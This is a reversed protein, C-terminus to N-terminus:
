VRCVAVCVYLCVLDLDFQTHPRSVRESVVLRVDHLAGDYVVSRKMSSSKQSVPTASLIGDIVTWHLQRRLKDSPRSPALM